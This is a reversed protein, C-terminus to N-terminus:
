RAAGCGVARPRGREGQTACAGRAAGPACPASGDALGSAGLARRGARRGQLAWRRQLCARAGRCASPLGQWVGRSHRGRSAWCRALRAGVGSALPRAPAVRLPPAVVAYPLPGPAGGAAGPSGSGPRPGDERGLAALAAARWTRGAADHMRPPPPAAAPSRPPPRAAPPAARRAASRQAEAAARLAEGKRMADRVVAANPEGARLHKFSPTPQTCASSPKVRPRLRRALRRPQEAAPLKNSHRHAAPSAAGAGRLAPHRRVPRLAPPRPAPRAQLRAPEADARPVAPVLQGQTCSGGGQSQLTACKASCPTGDMLPTFTPGWASAASRCQPCTKGRCPLSAVM